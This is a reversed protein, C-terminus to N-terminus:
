RDAGMVVREAALLKMQRVAERIDPASVDPIPAQRDLAVAYAIELEGWQEEFRERWEQPTSELQWLLGRLDSIVKAICLDGREFGALRDAMLRLQRLERENTEDPSM